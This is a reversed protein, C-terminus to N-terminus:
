RKIKALKTRKKANKLEQRLSTLVGAVLDSIGSAHHILSWAIAEAPEIEHKRLIRIIALAVRERNQATLRLLLATIKRYDEDPLQNLLAHFVETQAEIRQMITHIIQKERASLSTGAVHGTLERIPNRM